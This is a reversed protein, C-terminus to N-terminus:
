EAENPGMLLQVVVQFDHYDLFHQIKKGDRLSCTEYQRGGDSWVLYVPTNMTLGDDFLNDIIRTWSV